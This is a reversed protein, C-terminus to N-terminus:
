SRHSITGQAPDLLGIMRSSPAHGGLHENEANAL